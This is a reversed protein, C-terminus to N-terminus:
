EIGTVRSSLKRLYSPAKPKRGDVNYEFAGIDFSERRNVGDFDEYIPVLEGQNIAPSSEKLDFNRELPASNDPDIFEARSTLLNHSAITDSSLNRILEPNSVSPYSVLNNKLVTKSVESNIDFGRHENPGSDRRYITNNYLSIGVPAPCLGRRTVIFGTYGSASGSGDIINNRFSSYSAWIHVSVQVPNASQTGYQSIVRNREFIIDTLREDNLEDQPGITVPWPGSAGFINDSVIAFQTKHNLASQTASPNVMDESPGHLKLAHRGRPM